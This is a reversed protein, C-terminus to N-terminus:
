PAQLAEKLNGFAFFHSVLTKPLALGGSSWMQSLYILDQYFFDIKNLEM